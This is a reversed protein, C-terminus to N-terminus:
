SNNSSESILSEGLRLFFLDKKHIPQICFTVSAFQFYSQKNIIKNSDNSNLQLSSKLFVNAKNRALMKKVSLYLIHQSCNLPFRVRHPSNQIKNNKIAQTSLPEDAM